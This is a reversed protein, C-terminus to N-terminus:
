NIDVKPKGNLLLGLPTPKVFLYYTGLGIALTALAGILYEIGVGLDVNMMWYQIMLLIPLHVIYVWYSSKSIIRLLKSKRNL